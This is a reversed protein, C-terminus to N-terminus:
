AAVRAVGHDSALAIQIEQQHGRVVLVGRGPPTSAPLDLKIGLPDADHRSQPALLVATQRQALLPVTGRFATALTHQRVSVVVLAQRVDTSEILAPLALDVPTGGMTDLDDVLIAAGPHDALAEHLGQDDEPALVVQQRPASSLDSCGRTAPEQRPTLGRSILITPHGTTRLSAAITSLLTTRGSGGPGAVLLHRGWRLPDWHVPGEHGLGLLAGTAPSSHASGAREVLEELTLRTPLDVIPLPLRDRWPGSNVPPAGHSAFQLHHRGDAVVARGAPWPTPTDQSRIGHLLLVANDLGGLCITRSERMVRAGSLLPGGATVLHLGLDRGDLCTSMLRDILEACPLGPRALRDWEDMVVLVQPACARAGPGTARRHRSEKELHESLRRLRGVEDGSVVAGVHPLAALPALASGGDVAYVHLDDPGRRQTLRHVLEIVATSRGSGPGGVIRLPGVPPEWAFVEQRQQAPRDLLGWPVSLGIKDPPSVDEWDPPLSEPLPPLWPGGPLPLGSAQHAKTLLGVLTSEDTETSAEDPAATVPTPHVIDVSVEPMPPALPAGVRLSTFSVLEGSGLRAHGSGPSDPSIWAADKAGIVQVSDAADRMRLAIRLNVNAQIDPSIVGTPRQTALVLHIGLSRGVAACHVIGAMVDPHEQALVRFEDIIVVLRPLPPPDASAPVAERERRRYGDLDEAGATALLKERRHIEARLSDLARRAMSADLDTILGVTHPLSACRGFASGGKFDILLFTVEDPPAELALGLVLGRLFESKGSGTTGGILLHPGDRVLDIAWPQEGTMGVAAVPGGPNSGEERRAQWRQLIAVKAMDRSPADVPAPLRHLQWPTCTERSAHARLSRDTVLPALSHALRARWWEGVGDVVLGRPGLSEGTDLVGTGDADIRLTRWGTGAHPRDHLPAKPRAESLAESLAAGMLLGVGSTPDGIVAAMLEPYATLVTADPVVLVLLPRSTGHASSPSRSTSTAAETLSSAIRLARVIAARGSPNDVELDRWTRSHPLSRAWSWRDSRPTATLVALELDAPDHLTALQGVMNALAREVHEPTGTVFLRGECRLEVPSHPLTPPGDFTGPTRAAAGPHGTIAVLKAPQDGIGLRLVAFAEHDPARSWLQPGRGVAADLTTVPDPLLRELHDREADLAQQTTVEFDLCARAYEASAGTTRLRHRRREHLWSAGMTVPGLAALLLYHPGFFMALVLAIPVPVVMAIWPPSPPTSPTPMTPQRLTVVPPPQPHERRAAVRIHGDGLAVEPGPTSPPGILRIKTNGLSIRSAQTVGTFPELVPSADVTTGNTSALDELWVGGAGVGIRLHRRSVGPDDIGVTAFGQRGVVVPDVGLAVRHGCDPGSVLALDVVGRRQSSSTPIATSPGRRGVGPFPPTAQGAGGMLRVQAGETLPPMGVIADDEVRAGGCELSSPSTGLLAALRDALEAARLLRRARVRVVVVSDACSEVSAHASTHASARLTM